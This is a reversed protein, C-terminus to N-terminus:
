SATMAEALPSSVVNVLDKIMEKSSAVVFQYELNEGHHM